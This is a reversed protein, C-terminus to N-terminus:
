PDNNNTWTALVEDNSNARSSSLRDRPKLVKWLGKEAKLMCTFFKDINKERTRVKHYSNPLESAVTGLFLLGM